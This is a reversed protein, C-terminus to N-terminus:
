ESELAYPLYRKLEEKSFAHPEWNEPYDVCAQMPVDLVIKAPNGFYVGVVLLDKVVNSAYGVIVNSLVYVGAMLNSSSGIVAGMGIRTIYQRRDAGPRHHYISKTHSTMVGAGIFARDEVIVGKSITSRTRVAVDNGIYCLGTTCCLDAFDVNRGMRTGSKLVCQHGIKCGPGIVVDDEIVVNQGFKVSKDIRNEM